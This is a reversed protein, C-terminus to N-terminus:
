KNQKKDYLALINRMARKERESIEVDRYSSKGKLRVKAEEANAIARVAKELKDQVFAQYTEKIGISTTERNVQNSIDNFKFREGDALVIMSNIFLWDSASYTKNLILNLKDEKEILILSLENDSKDNGTSPDRYITRGEMEDHIALLKDEISLSPNDKLNAPVDPEEEFSFEDETLERFKKRLAGKDNKYRKRRENGSLQGLSYWVNGSEDDKDVEAIAFTTSDLNWGYHKVSLEDSNDIFDPEGMKAVYQSQKDRIKKIRDMLNKSGLNTRDITPYRTVAVLSDEIFRYKRAYRQGNITEEYYTGGLNWQILQGTESYHVKERSSGWDVKFWDQGQVQTVFLFIFLSSLLVKRM